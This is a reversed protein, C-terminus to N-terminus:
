ENWINIKQSSPKNLFLIYDWKNETYKIDCRTILYQGSIADNINFSGIGEDNNTITDIPINPESDSIASNNSLTDYKDDIIYDNYYSIFNVKNGKQLGLLCSNMHIEICESNIKKIFFDRLKKQKLYNHESYIEGLYDHHIFIDNKIDGDQVIYDLNELNNMNYISYVNDSGSDIMQGQNNIINYSNVYLETNRYKPHDNIYAITEIPTHEIDESMEGNQTSIWIKLDEDKDINNYRDKIDVLNINNWFDIWYDYIVNEDGGFEIERDLIDKYSKYNCYIYRKDNENDQINTAFGLGTEKAVQEFFQYTTLEGFSKFRTSLLDIIKYQASIQIYKDHIKTKTIYFTMNIKKYVNDFKPLIQVRVENDLGPDGLSEILGYKDYVTTHLTPLSSKSKLSFDIVDNFDIIIDNISILPSYIGYVSTQQIDYKNNTYLSGAESVSSSKLPM